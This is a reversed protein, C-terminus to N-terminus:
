QLRIVQNDKEGSASLFDSVEVTTDSMDTLSFVECAESSEGLQVENSYNNMQDNIESTIARECAM